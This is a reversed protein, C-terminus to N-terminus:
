KQSEKPAEKPESKVSAPRGAKKVAGRASPDHLISFESHGTVAKMSHAEFVRKHEAWEKPTFKQVVPVGRTWEGDKVINIFMVHFYGKEKDSVDYGDPYRENFVEQHKKPLNM